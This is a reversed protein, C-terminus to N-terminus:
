DKPLSKDPSVSRLAAALAKGDIKDQFTAKVKGAADYVVVAPTTALGTKAWEEAADDKSASAASLQQGFRQVLAERTVDNQFTKAKENTADAASWWYVFAGHKAAAADALAEAPTAKWEFAACTGPTFRGEQVTLWWSFYPVLKDPWKHDLNPQLRCEVTRVKDGLLSVTKQASDHNPDQAGALALAGMEKKAHKPTKGGNFGAAVWCASQFRLSEDFAVPALNWGGNSFGCAHLRRVGIRLKTKLSAVIKRVAELDSADWTPGKSKPALVVFDDKTMHMMSRAMGDDSGGAGHLIVLLSREKAPDFSDPMEVTCKLGELQQTSEGAPFPAADQSAAPAAPLAIVLAVVLLASAPILRM